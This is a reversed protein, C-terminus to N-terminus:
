PTVVQLHRADLEVQEFLADVFAEGHRAPFHAVSLVREQM